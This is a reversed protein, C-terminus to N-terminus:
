VVGQKTAIKRMLYYLINQVKVNKECYWVTYEPEVGLVSLPIGVRDESPVIDFLAAGPQWFDVFLAKLSQFMFLGGLSENVADYAAVFDLISKEDLKLHSLKWVMLSFVKLACQSLAELDDLAYCM